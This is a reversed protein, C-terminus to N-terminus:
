SCCRMQFNEISRFSAVLAKLQGIDLAQLKDLSWVQNDDFSTDACRVHFGLMLEFDVVHKDGVIAGHSLPHGISLHRAQEM